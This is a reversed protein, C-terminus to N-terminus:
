RVPSASVQAARDKTAGTLPDDSISLAETKKMSLIKMWIKNSLGTTIMEFDNVANTAAPDPFNEVYFQAVKSLLALLATCAHLYEEVKVQQGNQRFQEIPPDKALQHMDVIHALARIEAVAKLARYRKWRIELGIFIAGFVSLYVAAGKTTDLFKLVDALEHTVVGHIAGLATLVVVTWIGLRLPWIPQRIREAKAVAEQAFAHVERAVVALHAEHFEKTIWQELDASTKILKEPDLHRDKSAHPYIDLLRDRISALVDM